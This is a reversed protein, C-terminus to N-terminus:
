MRTRSSLAAARPSAGRGPRSRCAGLGRKVIYPRLLSSIARKRAESCARGGISDDCKGGCPYVRVSKVIAARRREIPQALKRRLRGLIGTNGSFEHQSGQSAPCFGRVSPPVSRTASISCLRSAAVPRYPLSTVACASANSANCAVFAGM